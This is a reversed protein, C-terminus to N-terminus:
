NISQKVFKIIEETERPGNYNVVEGNEKHLLLTPYGRVNYNECMKKDNECNYEICVTNLEGRSKIENKIKKWESLFNRSHGCWETFCLCLKNKKKDILNKENKKENYSSKVDKIINCNCNEMKNKKNKICNLVYLICLIIVLIVIIYIGNKTQIEFNM